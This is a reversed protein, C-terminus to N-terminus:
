KLDRSIGAALTTAVARHTVSEVLDGHLHWSGLNWVAGISGRLALGFGNDVRADFDQDKVLEKSDDIVAGVYALGGTIEARVSLSKKERLTYAAGGLVGLSRYSLPKTELGATASSRTVKGDLAGYIGRGIFQLSWKRYAGFVSAELAASGDGVGVSSLGISSGVAYKSPSRYVRYTSAFNRTGPKADLLALSHSKMIKGHRKGVKFTRRDGRMGNVQGIAVVEGDRNFVGVSDGITMQNTEVVCNTQRKNCLLTSGSATAVGTSLALGVTGTFALISGCSRVNKQLATKM